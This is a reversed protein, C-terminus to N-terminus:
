VVSSSVPSCDLVSRWAIECRDMAVPVRRVEEM